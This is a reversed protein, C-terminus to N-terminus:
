QIIGAQYKATLIRLISENIRSEALTGAQVAALVGDAAAKLDNPMLVMDAGAQLAAVAAEAPSYHDTISAMQHSDTIIVGTFGLKNRLIETVIKSSLDSPTDDGTVQPASLHSVMVFPVGDAIGSQFPLFDVTELEDLSKSISASGNHDDGSASGYGPFHKLCSVVKGASLSKVMVSVLSACLQPDTGFSRTGIVAKASEAVDAVPAFDMNFGLGTLEKAITTGAEYVASPDGKKGYSAMSDVATGGLAPNSGIRSVTGGEEDVGLFLPIKSYGQTNDLLNVTQERDVLNQSFYVLGGVPYSELATKTADGALTVPDKGTLIEPTVYFLQYVKEELTMSDLLAQAKSASDTPAPEAAPTTESGTSQSGAAEPVTKDGEYAPERSPQVTSDDTFVGGTDISSVGGAQKQPLVQWLLWGAGCLLAISLLIIITSLVANHKEKM